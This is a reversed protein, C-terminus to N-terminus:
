QNMLLATHLAVLAATETRLRNDGLHVAKINQEGAWKIETKSFDGEPGILISCNTQGHIVDKLSEKPSDKCHAMFGKGQVVIKKLPILPDLIPAYARLSQKVATHIIKQCREHKIQKRESRDCLVPTIKSVGLETAKELFLEFRSINKTPAVIMHISTKPAPIDKIELLNVICSKPNVIRLKATIIKGKGNTIHFTDGAKKRLVKAIHKSEIENFNYSEATLDIDPTFFQRM